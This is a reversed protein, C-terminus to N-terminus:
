QSQDLVRMARGYIQAAIIPDTSRLITVITDNKESVSVGVSPLALPNHPMFREHYGLKAARAQQCALSAVLWEKTMGKVKRLTIRTGLLKGSERYEEVALIDPQRSFPSTEREVQTLRSCATQELEVLHHAWERHERAAKRHAEADRLYSANREARTWCPMMVKTREGGSYLPEQNQDICRTGDKEESPEVRENSIQAEKDHAVAHEEHETASLPTPHKHSPAGSGCATAVVSLSLLSLSLVRLRM